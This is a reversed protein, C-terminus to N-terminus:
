VPAMQRLHRIVATFREVAYDIEDDTTFRGLGFRVSASPVPDTGMIASLVHSPTGSASSCASGTSVAFGRRSLRTLWKLNGFEPMVLMSTNWLRPAGRGIVLVGEISGTVEAEFWDRDEEPRARAGVRGDRERWAALMAAIGAV